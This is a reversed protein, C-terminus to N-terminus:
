FIFLCAILCDFLYIILLIFSHIFLYILLYLLFCTDLEILSATCFMKKLEVASKQKETIHSDGSVIIGKEEKWKYM